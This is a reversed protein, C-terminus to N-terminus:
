ESRTLLRGRRPGEGENQWRGAIHIHRESVGVERLGNKENGDPDHHDM